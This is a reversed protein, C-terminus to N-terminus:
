GWNRPWTKVLSTCALVDLPADGHLCQRDSISASTSSDLPPTLLRRSTSEDRAGTHDMIRRRGGQLPSQIMSLHTRSATPGAWEFPRRGKTNELCPKLIRSRVRPFTLCSLHGISGSSVRTLLMGEILYGERQQYTYPRVRAAPGLFYRLQGIVIHRSLGFGPLWYQQIQSSPQAM